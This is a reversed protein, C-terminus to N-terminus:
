NSAHRSTRYALEETLRVGWKSGEALRVDRAQEKKQTEGFVYGLAAGILSTTLVNGKTVLAILAGAGAGMGVFKLHDNAAAPKAVFRGDEEAVSNADLGITKGHIAYNQGDPFVIRDFALSLVGPTDGTMPTAIDVHGEVVTGKPLGNYTGAADTIVTGKFRDGVKSNNSTLVRNLSFPIVTGATSVMTRADNVPPQHYVSTSRIEVTRTNAVWQVEAGLSESLFRLPVMTRGAHISAPTDLRVQRGNVDAFQSNIPLRIIDNGRQATVMAAAADWRVTANMHEFVGRVPVMVRGNVMVPRVDPFLVHEGNVTARIEQAAVMGAVASLALATIVKTNRM